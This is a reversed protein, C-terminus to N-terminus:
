NEKISVPWITLTGDAAGSALFRGDPSWSIQGTDAGLPEQALIQSGQWHRLEVGRAITPGSIPAQAYFGGTPAFTLGGNNSTQSTELEGSRVHWRTLRTDFQEESALLSEDNEWATLQYAPIELILEDQQLNYIFLTFYGAENRPLNELAVLTGSPNFLAIPRTGAPQATRVNEARILEQYAGGATEQWLIMTGAADEGSTVGSAALLASGDPSWIIQTVAQNAPYGSLVTSKEGTESDVIVVNNGSGYALSRGDPAFAVGAVRATVNNFTQTVIENELDYIIMENTDRDTLAVLRSDASFAPAEYITDFVAQPEGSAVDWIIFQNDNPAAIKRGDLSWDFRYGVANVPIQGVVEEDAPGDIFSTSSLTGDTYLSLVSEGAFSSVLRHNPRPFDMQGELRGSEAEWVQLPYSDGYFGFGGKGALWQGDPSYFLPQGAKSPNFDLASGPISQTVSQSAFEITDITGAPSSLTLFRGDPSWAAAYTSYCGNPHTFSFRTEGTQVDLIQACTEMLSSLTIGTGDPTWVLYPQTNENGQSDPVETVTGGAPELLYIPDARHPGIFQVAIQNGDPAYAIDGWYANGRAVPYTDYRGDELDMIVVTGDALAAAVAQSGAHMDLAVPAAPLARFWQESTPSVASFSVGNAWAGAVGGGDLSFAADVIQGRGLSQPAGLSISPHVSPQSTPSPTPAPEPPSSSVVEQVMPVFLLVEGPNTFLELQGDQLHYQRTESLATTFDGELQHVDPAADCQTEVMSIGPFRIDNSEATYTGEYHRCGAFGSMIEGNEFNLTIGIDSPLGRDKWSVLLWITGILDAPNNTFRAQPTFVLSNQGDASKIELRDAFLTYSAAHLSEIYANEQMALPESCGVATQSIEPMSFSSGATSTYTGGYENCGAFGGAEKELFELTMHSGPVLADGNMEALEWATGALESNTSEAPTSVAKSSPLRTAILPASEVSCSALLLIFSFFLLKKM